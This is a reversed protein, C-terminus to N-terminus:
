PFYKALISGMQDVALGYFAAIEELGFQRTELEESLTNIDQEVKVIPTAQNGMTGTRCRVWSNVTLGPTPEYRKHNHIEFNTSHRLPAEPSDAAKADDRCFRDVLVQAPSEARCVRTVVLGLRGVRIDNERIHDEIPGRCNTVVDPLPVPQDQEQEGLAWSSTLRSPSATFTWVRDKSALAVRPLNHPADDPLPIAQVTGDFRKAYKSLVAALLAPPDFEAAEPTFAVVRVATLILDDKRLGM